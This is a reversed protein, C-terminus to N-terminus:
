LKYKSRKTQTLRGEWSKGGLTAKYYVKKGRVSNVKIHMKTGMKFPFNPLTSEKIVLYYECDNVWEIDSKIFHEQDNHYEIYKNESFVVIVDKKANKYTFVNGKLIECDKKTSTFSMLLTISLLM